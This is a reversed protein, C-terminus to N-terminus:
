CKSQVAVAVKCFLLGQSQDLILPVNVYSKLPMQLRQSEIVSLAKM